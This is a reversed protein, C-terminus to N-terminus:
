SHIVKKKVSPNLCFIGSQNSFIIKALWGWRTKFSAIWWNQLLACMDQSTAQCNAVTSYKSGTNQRVGAQRDSSYAQGWCTLCRGSRGRTGSGAGCGKGRGGPGVNNICGRRRGGGPSWVALLVGDCPDGDSCTLMFFM